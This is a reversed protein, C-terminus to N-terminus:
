VFGSMRDLQQGVQRLLRRCIAEAPKEWDIRVLTKLLTDAAFGNARHSLLGVDRQHARGAVSSFAQGAWGKLRPRWFATLRGCGRYGDHEHEQWLGQVAV